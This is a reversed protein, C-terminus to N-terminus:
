DRITSQDRVTPIRYLTLKKFAFYKFVSEFIWKILICDEALDTLLIKIADSYNGHIFAM